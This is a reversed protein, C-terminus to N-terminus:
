SRSSHVRLNRTANIGIPMLAEVEDIYEERVDTALSEMTYSYGVCDIPNWNRVCCIFYDILAVAAPPVLVNVVAEADYGMSQIDLLALRDFGEEKNAKHAAWEALSWRGIMSFGVCAEQMLEPTSHSLHYAEALQWVWSIPTLELPRISSKAACKAATIAGDLLNKSTTISGTGEMPQAFRTKGSCPRSLWTRDKTAIVVKDPAIQAWQVDTLDALKKPYIAKTSLLSIKSGESKKKM